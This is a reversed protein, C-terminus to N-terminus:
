FCTRYKITRYATFSVVTYIGECLRQSIPTPPLISLNRRTNEKILANKKGVFILFYLDVSQWVHSAQDSSISLLYTQIILNVSHKEALVFNLYLRNLHIRPQLYQKLEQWERQLIFSNWEQIFISMLFQLIHAWVSFLFNFTSGAYTLCITEM